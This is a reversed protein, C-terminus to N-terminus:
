IKSKPNQVARDYRQQRAPLKLLPRDMGWDLIWSGLDESGPGAGLVTWLYGRMLETYFMRAVMQYGARTLHVRDSQALTPKQTVWREISGPGGMAGFLDWFAAGSDLAARRQAAVLAPMGGITKWRGSIRTARDPPSIVLLSAQPVASRFRDLLMSLARTYEAPDLVADGVENSGYAIVILDPLRRGLNDALLMWDWVLLRGARAGNIGLADYTVGQRAHEAVIGFVKVLGESVTRLEVSHLGEDAAVVEIYVPEPTKSALSEESHVIRGDLLVDVAGGGPKGLLYFEFRRCEAELHVWEGSRRTALSIGALGLM